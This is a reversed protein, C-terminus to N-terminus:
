IMIGSTLKYLPLRASSLSRSPSIHSANTSFISVLFMEARTTRGVVISNLRHAERDPIELLGHAALFDDQTCREIMRIVAFKVYYEKTFSTLDGTFDGLRVALEM